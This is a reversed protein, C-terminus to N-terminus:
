LVRRRRRHYGPFRPATLTRCSSGSTSCHLFSVQLWKIIEQSSHKEELLRSLEEQLEEVTIYEEEVSSGLAEDEDEAEEAAQAEAAPSQVM